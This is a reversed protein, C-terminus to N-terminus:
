AAMGDAGDTVHTVRFKRSERLNNGRWKRSEENVVNVGVGLKERIEDKSMGSDLAKMVADSRDEATPWGPLSEEPWESTTYLRMHRVGYRSYSQLEEALVMNHLVYKLTDRECIIGRGRLAKDIDCKNMIGNGVIEIIGLRVRNTSYPLHPTQRKASIELPIKPYEWEPEGVLLSECLTPMGRRTAERCTPQFRLAKLRDDTDKCETCISSKDDQTMGLAVMLPSPVAIEIPYRPSDDEAAVGVGDEDVEVEDIVGFIDEADIEAYEDM